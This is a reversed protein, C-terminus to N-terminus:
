SAFSAAALRTNSAWTNVVYLLRITAEFLCRAPRASLNNVGVIMISGCAKSLGPTSISEYGLFGVVIIPSARRKIWAVAASAM